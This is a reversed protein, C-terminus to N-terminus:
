LEAPTKPAKPAPPTWPYAKWAGGRPRRFVFHKGAINYPGTGGAAVIASIDAELQSEIDSVSKQAAVLKGMGAKFRAKVAAM